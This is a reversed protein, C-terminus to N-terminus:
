FEKMDKKISVIRHHDDTKDLLALVCDRQTKLTQRYYFKIVRTRENNWIQTVCDQLTTIVPIAVNEKITLQLLAKCLQRQRPYSAAQKQMTSIIKSSAKDRFRSFGAIILVKNEVRKIVHPDNPFSRPT